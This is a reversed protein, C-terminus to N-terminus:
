GAADGPLLAVVGGLGVWGDLHSQKRDTLANILKKGCRQSFLIISVCTSCRRFCVPAFPLVPGLFYLTAGSKVLLPAVSSRM